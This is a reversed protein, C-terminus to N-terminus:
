EPYQSSQFTWRDLIWARLYDLEGDYDNFDGRTNWGGYNRYADGWRQQDRRASIDIEAIYDDIRALVEDVHYVGQLAAAYRARLPGAITPEDFFRVFLENAWFFDQLQDADTRLTRWNQGLSDNFDWPVYRWPGGQPDHYHYSNKGASDNSLTFTVFVFWDEYDAREIRSDVEALFTASDSTAAFDVLDDLDAFDTAPTGEKKEYGDHLTGKPNGDNRTLKFNADHNIAKYLNGAESLGHQRMLHRDPHDGLLYLGWYEGELYVVASYTDIQIHDESLANWLDFCLRQRVYTNDDFTTTLVIKRKGIFERDPEDFPDRNDFRLTYSNKPYGLSAAGRLKGDAAIYEKGGYYITVPTFDSASTPAQSLFLVPLGYEHTYILPDVPPVNSPDDWKDAVGITLVHTEGVTVRYVGAQDLRPTWTLLSADADFSAGDPLPQIETVGCDVALELTETEEIWVADPAPACPDDDEVGGSCAALGLLALVIAARWM